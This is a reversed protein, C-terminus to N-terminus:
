LKSMLPSWREIIRLSPYTNLITAAAMDTRVDHKDAVNLKYEVPVAIGSTTPAPGEADSTICADIKNNYGPINSFITAGPCNRYRYRNRTRGESVTEYRGISDAIAVLHEYAVNESSDIRDPIDVFDKFRLLGEQDLMLDSQLMDSSCKRIDAATPVFPLYKAIFVDSDYILFERDMEDSIQHRLNTIFHSGGDTRISRPTDKVRPGSLNM